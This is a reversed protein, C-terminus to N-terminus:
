SLKLRRKPMDSSFERNMPKYQAYSESIGQLDEAIFVFKRM